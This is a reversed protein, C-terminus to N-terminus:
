KSKKKKKFFLRDEMTYLLVCNECKKEEKLIRFVLSAHNHYQVLPTQYSFAIMTYTKLESLIHCHFNNTSHPVEIQELKILYFVRCLLILSLCNPSCPNAQPECTSNTPEYKASNITSRSLEKSLLWNMM